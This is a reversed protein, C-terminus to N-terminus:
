NSCFLPSINTKTMASLLVRIGLGLNSQYLIFSVLSGTTMHGSNIFRRGYYLMLVQMGLGIFQLYLFRNCFCIVLNEEM